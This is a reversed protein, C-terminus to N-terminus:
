SSPLSSKSAGSSPVPTLIGQTNGREDLEQSRRNHGSRQKQVARSPAIEDPHAPRPVWTVDGSGSRERILTLQDHHLRRHCTPCVLALNDVDTRGRRRSEFPILHHAECRQHPAACLVCSEDRAILATRQSTTATRISRGLWLPQGRRDTAMVTLACDCLLRRLEQDPITGVGALRASIAGELPQRKRAPREAFGWGDNLHDREHEAGM